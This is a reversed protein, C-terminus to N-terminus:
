RTKERKIFNNLSSKLKDLYLTESGNNRKKLDQILKDPNKIEISLLNSFFKIVDKQKGRISENEILAKILEMFETQTGEWKIGLNSNKNSEPGTTPIVKFEEVPSGSQSNKTLFHLKYGYHNLREELMKRRKSLSYRASDAITSDLEFFFNLSEIGKSLEKDIFDLEHADEFLSLFNDLREHYTEKYIKSPCGFFYRERSINEKYEEIFLKLMKSKSTEYFEEFKLQEESDRLLHPNFTNAVDDILDNLANMSKKFVSASEKDFGIIVKDFGTILKNLDAM